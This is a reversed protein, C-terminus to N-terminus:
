LGKLWDGLSHALRRLLSKRKINTFSLAVYPTGYVEYKNGFNEAAIEDKALEWLESFSLYPRSERAELQRWTSPYSLSYYPVEPAVHTQPHGPRPEGQLVRREMDRDFAGFLRADHREELRDLHEEIAEPSDVHRDHLYDHPPEEVEWPPTLEDSM